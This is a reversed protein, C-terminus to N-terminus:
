GGIFGAAWKMAQNYFPNNSGVSRIINIGQNQNFMYTEIARAQNRTLSDYVQKLKSFKKGAKNHQSLRKSLNQKTIGTYVEDDTQSIGKYVSNNVDGKNLWCCFNWM